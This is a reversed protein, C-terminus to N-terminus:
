QLEYVRLVPGASKGSYSPQPPVRIIARYGHASKFPPKFDRRSPEFPLLHGGAEQPRHNPRRFEPIVNGDKDLAYWDVTYRIGDVGLTNSVADVSIGKKVDFPHIGVDLNSGITEKGRKSLRVSGVALDDAPKERLTERKKLRLGHASGRGGHSRGNRFRLGTKGLAQSLERVTEGDPKMEADTKLGKYEQFREIADFMREDPWPTLGTKPVEYLGLAALASKTSRTDAPEVATNRAVSGKSKLAPPVM